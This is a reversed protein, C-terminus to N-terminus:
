FSHNPASSNTEFQFGDGGGGGGSMNIIMNAAPISEFFFFLLSPFTSLSPM